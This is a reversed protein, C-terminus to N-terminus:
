EATLRVCFLAFARSVEPNIKSELRCRALIMIARSRGPHTDKRSSRWLGPAGPCRFGRSTSLPSFSPTHMTFCTHRAADNSGMMKTTM